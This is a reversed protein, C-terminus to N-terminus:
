HYNITWNMSELEQLTLEYLKLIMYKKVITDWPTTELTHSDYIFFILKPVQLYYSEVWNRFDNDNKKGPEVKLLEGEVRPNYNLITNPYMPSFYIYVAKNTINEIYVNDHCDKKNRCISVSLM